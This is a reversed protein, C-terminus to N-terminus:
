GKILPIVSFENFSLPTYGGVATDFNAFTKDTWMSDFDSFTACSSATIGTSSSSFSASNIRFKNSNKKFVSGITNGFSANSAFSSNVTVSPGCIKQAAALGANALVFSDIIFPNDITTGADASVLVDDAGTIFTNLKKNFFVGTGTIWLAPYDVNDGSTEVGIRYPAYTLGGADAILGYNKPATVTIEVEGINETLAVTLSGGSSIWASPLIPLNDSGVVVYEGATGNHSGLSVTSVCIPQNINILTADINFRKTITEGANVQMSDSFSSLFTKTSDSDVDYNKIDYVTKNSAFSTNYNYIDVTKAAMFVEIDESFDITYSTDVTTQLAKRFGLSTGTFYMEFASKDTTNYTSASCLMKLYDWVNGTWAIFNVSRAQLATMLTSEFVPTVACLGCYAVIADYLNTYIPPATKTVNLRAQVSDGTIVVAGANTSVKKVQFDLSGYETNQMTVTNNILLKSNPHGLGDSDTTDEIASITIQSSGGTSSSPELPTVDESYSFEFISDDKIKGSGTNATIKTSM